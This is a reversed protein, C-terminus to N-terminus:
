SIYFSNNTPKRSIYDQNFQAFQSFQEQLREGLIRNYEARLQRERFSLIQKVEEVTFHKKPQQEKSQQQQQNQQKHKKKQVKCSEVFSDVSQLGLEESSPFHDLRSRKALIQEQHVKNQEAQQQIYLQHVNSPQQLLSTSNTTSPEFLSNTTTNNFERRRKMPREMMEDEDFNISEQTSFSPSTRMQTGCGLTYPTSAQQEEAFERYTRKLTVSM